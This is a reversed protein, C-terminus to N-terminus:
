ARKQQLEQKKREFFGRNYKAIVATTKSPSYNDPVPYCSGGLARSQIYAYEYEVGKTKHLLELTYLIREVLDANQIKEPDESLSYIPEM